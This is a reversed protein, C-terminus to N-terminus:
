DQRLILQIPEVRPKTSKKTEDPLWVCPVDFVNTENQVIAPTWGGSIWIGGAEEKLAWIYYVMPELNTFIVKGENDTLMALMPEEFNDWDVENDYLWVDAGTLLNTASDYIYFSLNTPENITISKVKSTEGAGNTATLKVDYTGTNEYIYSPNEDSSYGGEGFTWNFSSGNETTNKFVIAIGAEPNNTPEYTFDTEPAKECSTIILILALAFVPTISRSIKM